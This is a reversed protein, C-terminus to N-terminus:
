RQIKKWDIMNEIQKGLSYTHLDIGKDLKQISSYREEQYAKSFVAYIKLTPSETIDRIDKNLLTNPVNLRTNKDKVFGVCGKIGGAAKETYLKPGRDTFDGIMTANKGILMMHELIELKQITSGDKSFTIDDEMLREALCMEYFQITSAIRKRSTKVGTLHQFNYRHFAAEYYELHKLEQKHMELQRKIDSPLGYVFLLKRDELYEKYLKASKTLIRIARKKDM